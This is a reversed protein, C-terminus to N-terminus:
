SNKCKIEGNIFKPKSISVKGLMGKKLIISVKDITKIHTDLTSSFDKVCHLSTHIIVGDVNSVFKYTGGSVELKISYDKYFDTYKIM